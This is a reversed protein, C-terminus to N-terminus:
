CGVFQESTLEKCAGTDFSRIKSMYTLSLSTGKRVFFYDVIAIAAFPGIFISHGALFTLLAAASSLINWPVITFTLNMCLIQGRRINFFPPFLDAIDSNLPLSSAVVNTRLLAVAFAFSTFCCLAKMVTSNLLLGFGCEACAGSSRISSPGYKFHTHHRRITSSHFDQSPVHNIAVM